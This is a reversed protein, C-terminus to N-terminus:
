GRGLASGPQTTSRTPAVETLKVVDERAPAHRAEAYRQRDDDPGVHGALDDLEPFTDRSPRHALAHQDIRQGAFSGVPKKEALFEVPAAGLETGDVRLLQHPYGDGDAVLLGRRQRDGVAGGVPHQEGPRGGAPSFISIRPALPPTPM